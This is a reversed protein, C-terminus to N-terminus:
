RPSEVQGNPRELTWYLVAAALLQGAGFPLAMAWPTLSNPGRASLLTVVGAALYFVGVAFAPRPLLRCSAFVGQCFFVQWLGPLVWAIQPAVRVIVATVSAAAVLCPVFQGGALWTVPRTSSAGAVRDRLFMTLGAALISVLAVASWLAVYDPVDQNPRPLISQQVFGAGLALVASFAVPLARYGRFVETEAMRRRILAINDLAERLDM